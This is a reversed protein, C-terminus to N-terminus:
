PQLARSCAACQPEPVVIADLCAGTMTRTSGWNPWFMPLAARAISL